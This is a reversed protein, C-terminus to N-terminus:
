VVINENSKFFASKSFFFLIGRFHPHSIKFIFRFLYCLAVSKEKKLYVSLEIKKQNGNM